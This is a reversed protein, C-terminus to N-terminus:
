YRKQLPPTTPVLMAPLVDASANAVYRTDLKWTEATRRWVDVIFVASHGPERKLLFSAVALEGYDHVALQEPQGILGQSKSNKLWEARPVPEGPRSAIRMEFREGLLNALIAADGKAQADSLTAELNAFLQVLRTLSPIRYAPAEDAYVLGLCLSLLGSLLLTRALKM